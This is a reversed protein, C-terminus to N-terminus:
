VTESSDERRESRRSASALRFISRAAFKEWRETLLKTSALAKAEASFIM